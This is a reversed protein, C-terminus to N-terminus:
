LHHNAPVSSTNVLLAAGISSNLTVDAIESHSIPLRVMGGSYWKLGNDQLWYSEQNNIGTFGHNNFWNAFTAEQPNTMWYLNQAVGKMQASTPLAWGTNLGCLHEKNLEAALNNREGYSVIYANASWIYGTMPDTICECTGRIKDNDNNPICIGTESKPYYATFTPAMLEATFVGTPPGAVCVSTINVVSLGFLFKLGKKMM